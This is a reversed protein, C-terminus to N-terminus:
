HIIKGLTPRRFRVTGSVARGAGATDGTAHVYLFLQYNQIPAPLTIPGAHLIGNWAEGPTSGMAPTMVWDYIVADVSRIQMGVSGINVAGADVEVGVFAELKQGAALNASSITQFARAFVTSDPLQNGGSGTPGASTYTGSMVFKLCNFQPELADAEVSAVTTLSGSTGVTWGTPASGTAGSITGATGILLPNALLNGDPALAADFVAQCYPLPDLPPFLNSLINAARKGIQYAAQTQWHLQDITYGTLPNYNASTPDTIWPEYDVVMVGYTPRAVNRMWRNIEIELGPLKTTGLILGARNDPPLPVAIPQIGANILATYIAALDATIQAFTNRVISGINNIGPGVFCVAPRPNLAIIQGVAALVQDTTFGPLGVIYGSPCQCRQGSLAVAWQVFGNAFATYQNGNLSGNFNTLSDGLASVYPVRVIDAATIYRSMEVVGFSSAM